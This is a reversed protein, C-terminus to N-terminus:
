VGAVTDVLTVGAVEKLGQKTTLAKMGKASEKKLKNQVAVNKEDKAAGRM